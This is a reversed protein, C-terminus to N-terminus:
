IDRERELSRERKSERDREREKERQRAKEKGRDIESKSASNALVLLIYTRAHRHTCAHM